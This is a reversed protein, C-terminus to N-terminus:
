CLFACISVCSGHELAYTSCAPFSMKRRVRQHLYRPAKQAGDVTPRTAVTTALAGRSVGLARRRAHPTRAVYM